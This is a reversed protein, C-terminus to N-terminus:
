MKKVATDKTTVVTKDSTDKKATDIMKNDAKNLLTDIKESNTNKPPDCAVVAVSIALAVASLKILNKM